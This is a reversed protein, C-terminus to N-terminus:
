PRGAISVLNICYRNGDGDPLNHGLHTGNTSIVEGDQLVRVFSWNVEDDRFSPWGHSVSEKLFASFTRNCPVTFLLHGANSDHFTIKGGNKVEAKAKEVFHTTSFYGSPEAQRRNFNCIHDAMERDCDWRLNQQLPTKSSGYGYKGPSMMGEDGMVVKPGFDRLLLPSGVIESGGQRAAEMVDSMRKAIDARLMNKAVAKEEPTLKGSVLMARAHDANSLDLHAKAKAKAESTATPKGAPKLLKKPKNSPPQPALGSAHIADPSMSPQVPARPCLSLERWCPNSSSLTM